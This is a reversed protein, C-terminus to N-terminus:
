DKSPGPGGVNPPTPNTIVYWAGFAALAALVSVVMVVDLVSM